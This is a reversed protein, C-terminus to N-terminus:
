EQTEGGEEQGDAAEVVSERKETEVLSRKVPLLHEITRVIAEQNFYTVNGKQLTTVAVGLHDALSQVPFLVHICKQLYPILDFVFCSCFRLFNEKETASFAQQEQKYFSAIVSSMGQLSGELARTLHTAVAMPACLRLENLLNLIANCYNALPRFDLLSEPPSVSEPSEEKNRDMADQRSVIKNILTYNEMEVHFGKSAAKVGEEVQKAIFKLFIPVMQGRFDAGIRSFSMGFYMCQGLVTDLSSIGRNLDTELTKLFQEVKRSLWSHLLKNEDGRQSSKESAASSTTTTKKSFDEEGLFIAKFQTMINFVNVRTVEITKTLHQQAPFPFLIIIEM